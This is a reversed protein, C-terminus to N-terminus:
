CRDTKREAIARAAALVAKVAEDRSEYDQTWSFGFPSFEDPLLADWLVLNSVASRQVHLKLLTDREKFLQAITSAERNWGGGPEAVKALQAAFQMADDRTLAASLSMGSGQPFRITVEVGDSVSEMEVSADVNAFTIRTRNGKTTVNM